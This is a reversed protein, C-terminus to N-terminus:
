NQEAANPSPLSEYKGRERQRMRDADGSRRSETIFDNVFWWFVIVFFTLLLGEFALRLLTRLRIQM